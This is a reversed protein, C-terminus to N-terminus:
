AKKGKDKGKAKAEKHGGKKGGGPCDGWKYTGNTKADSMWCKGSDSMVPPPKGAASAPAFAFMTTAAFALSAAIFLYRM